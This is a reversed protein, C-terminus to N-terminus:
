LRLCKFVCHNEFLVADCFTSMSGIAEPTVEILRGCGVLYDEEMKMFNM